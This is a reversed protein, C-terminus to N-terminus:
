MTASSIAEDDDDTDDADVPYSIDNVGLIVVSSLAWMVSDDDDDDDDNCQRIIL